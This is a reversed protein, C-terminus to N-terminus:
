YNLICYNSNYRFLLLFIKGFKDLKNTDHSEWFAKLVCTLAVDQSLIKVENDTDMKRVRRRGFVTNQCWM